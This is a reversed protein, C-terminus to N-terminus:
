LAQPLSLMEGKQGPLGCKLYVTKGGQELEEQSLVRELLWRGRPSLWSWELGEVTGLGMKTHPVPELSPTGGKSASGLACFWGVPTCFPPIEGRWCGRM